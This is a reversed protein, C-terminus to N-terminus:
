WYGNGSAHRSPNDPRLRALTLPHRCIVTILQSHHLGCDDLLCASQNERVERM